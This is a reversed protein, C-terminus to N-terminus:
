YKNWNITTKFGLRLQELLKANDQTSLAVFPVYLKTDTITFTTAKFDNASVYKDSWTLILNIECNILPMELTRQFSTLYKLPVIIEVNKSGDDDTVGTIKQKFKFSASNDAAHFNAIIGVDTLAPEDRYYEWLSGLTELYDDSYEILNYMPM